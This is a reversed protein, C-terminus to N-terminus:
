EHDVRGGTVTIKRYDFGRSLEKEITIRVADEPILEEIRSPWEILCVGEGFFYEEYGIEELEEPDALRYVDFHYLPIRGTEYEQVITFTPSTVPEEIGLGHAFGQTFVTKGVGLDGELCYLSGAAVSQALQEGFRYTDQENWSEYIKKEM